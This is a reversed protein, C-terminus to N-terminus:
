DMNSSKCDRGAHRAVYGTEQAISSVQLAYRSVQGRVVCACATRGEGDRSHLFYSTPLRM